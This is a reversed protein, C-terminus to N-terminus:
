CIIGFVVEIAVGVGQWCHPFISLELLFKLLCSCFSGEEGEEEFQKRHTDQIMRSNTPLGPQYMVHSGITMTDIAM